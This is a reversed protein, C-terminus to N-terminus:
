LWSPAPQLKDGATRTCTNRDWPCGNNRLWELIKLNGR